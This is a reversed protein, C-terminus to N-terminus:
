VCRGKGQVFIVQYHKASDSSMLFHRAQEVRDRCQPSLSASDLREEFSERKPSFKIEGTRLIM